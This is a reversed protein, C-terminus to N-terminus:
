AVAAPPRAEAAGAAEDGAEEQLFGGSQREWLRAYHGGLAILEAHSGQEVIQGKELIVLRDMRAITSLRHAIAIVTKGRMLDELSSQIAAEVESDLASTAEDLILIPANKLIVRAIAIRQRQGGSLKVGREGVHADYGKRGRWDELGLIFEHAHALRAAAMVEDVTADPRGYRINDLISRHLLSTDQTVVSIQERLSDQTALAIDQGDILIRGAEVDYFRLLLNVLTSKGAGSRGVLGIKEGPKVSLSLEEIVGGTRGYHFAIRDFRIAGAPVTIPRADPRDTLGHPVAITEMGEHVTGFQEFIQTVEYAVRGSIGSIQLTLPLVTAITEIGVTGKSWLWLALAGTAVILFGSLVALSGSLVTFWRMQILMRETHWDVSERVYADEHAARAFLKVTAINTYSDVIRGVLGSRAFAIAKSAERVRPVLYALMGVYGATWLGIPILLWPDAAGMIVGAALGLAVLYWVVSIMSVASARLAYGTEMVRSGIRGAFDNQFFSLNQRVVHWHSQWRVLNTLGPFIAQHQILGQLLLVLPRVVLIVAAMGILTPLMAGFMQERELTSIMHVTRGIFVPVAADVAAQALGTVILAAFLGRVQRIFFWYFPLLGRPPAGAAGAGTPRVISEFLRFM